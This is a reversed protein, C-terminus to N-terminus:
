SLRRKLTTMLVREFDDAIRAINFTAVAYQRARAALSRATQKNSSLYAAAKVFENANDPDVVLGVGNDKVIRAALNSPPVALLLAREACLYTLVKSPVSFAGADKEIIALLVDATAIVEPLIEFRQFDFLFLSASLGLERKRKELYERGLGESIVVVVGDGSSQCYLALQILLEPNHKLGLTGSYLFVTRNAFGHEVSWRNQKPRVPLENLPAWNQIVTAKSKDAILDLFDSSIAVVGDSLGVAEKEQKLIYRGALRGVVGFRRSFVKQAAVGFWDQLWYVFPVSSRQCYKLLQRQITPSANGSLLIDPKFLKLEVSCLRAYARDAFFRRVFSYKPYASQLSLAHIRLTKPDTTNPAVAGKPGQFGQLYL